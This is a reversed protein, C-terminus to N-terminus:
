KEEKNPAIVNKKKNKKTIAELKDCVEELSTCTTILIM